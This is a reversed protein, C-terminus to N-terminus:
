EDSRFEMSEQPHGTLWFIRKLLSNAVVTIICRIGRHNFFYVDALDRYHEDTVLIWQDAFRFVYSNDRIGNRVLSARGALVRFCGPYIRRVFAFFPLGGLLRGGLLAIAYWPLLSFVLGLAILFEAAKYRDIRKRISYGVLFSEGVELHAGTEVDIVTNGCVIKDVIEMSRGIFTNDLVVARELYSHDDIVVDNGLIVDGHLVAGKGVASNNQIILPPILKSGPLTIVNQGIDFGRESYYGPLTYIGPQKLMKMNLEFYKKISDMRHLPCVCRNLVGDRLLYIGCPLPSESAEDVPRLDDFLMKADPLDPLVQGWFILLDDDPITGEHAAILRRPDAADGSPFYRIKTSWLGGDGLRKPLEPRFFCDAIFIDPIGLISCFGVAHRAWSKGVIPMEAPSKGPLIEGM